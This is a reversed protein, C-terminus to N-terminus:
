EVLNTAINPKRAYMATTLATGGLTDKDNLRTGYSLLLNIHDLTGATARQLMLSVYGPRAYSNPDFGGDLIAKLFRIDKSAFAFHLASGIGNAMQTDPNVGLAVLAQIAEYKQHLIAFWMLSMNKRGIQSLNQGQALRQLRPIDEYVIAQAM